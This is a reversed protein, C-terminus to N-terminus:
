ESSEKKFRDIAYLNLISIIDDANQHHIYGIIGGHKESVIGVMEGKDLWEEADKLNADDLDMQYFEHDGGPYNAAIKKNDVDTLGLISKNM